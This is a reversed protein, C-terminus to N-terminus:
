LAMGTRKDVLRFEAGVLRAIETITYHAPRKVKGRRWNYITSRGVFSRKALDGASYGDILDLVRALDPDIDPRQHKAKRALRKTSAIYTSAETRM